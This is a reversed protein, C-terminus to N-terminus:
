RGPLGSAAAVEATSARTAPSLRETAPGRAGAAVDPRGFCAADGASRGPANWNASGSIKRHLLRAWGLRGSAGIRDYLISSSNRNSPSPGGKTGALDPGQPIRPAQALSGAKIPFSFAGLGAHSLPTPLRGSYDVRATVVNDTTEFNVALAGLSAASAPANQRFYHSAIAYADANPNAGLAASAAFAAADTATQSQSQYQAAYIYSCVAAFGVLVIPTALGFVVPSAGAFNRWGRDRHALRQPLRNRLSWRIFM